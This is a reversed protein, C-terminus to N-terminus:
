LLIDGQTTLMQSHDPHLIEQPHQIPVTPLTTVATEINIIFVRYGSETLRFIDESIPVRVGGVDLGSLGVYYFKPAHPNYVLPAWATGVTFARVLGQGFTLWRPSICSYSSLCYSFARRMEPIHDIFTMRGGKRGLLGAIVSFLGRNNQGCGIAMNLIRTQGFTLTELMLTGKTYCGDTYNVKYGCKSAHCHRDNVFLADFASSGCLVVTYSAPTAPIFVPDAQKYSMNYHQCQETNVDSVTDM